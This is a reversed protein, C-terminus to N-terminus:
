VPAEPHAVAIQELAERALEVAAAEAWRSWNNEWDHFRVPPRCLQRRLRLTPRRVTTLANVDAHGSVLRRRGLRGKGTRSATEDEVCVLRLRSSTLVRVPAVTRAETRAPCALGTGCSM